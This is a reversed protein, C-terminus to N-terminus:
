AKALELGVELARKALQAGEGFWAREVRADATKGQEHTVFETIANYAGWLTGRVGPIDSGRGAQFLEGVRAVIRPAGKETDEPSFVMRAFTALTADDCPRKSLEVLKGFLDRFNAQAALMMERVGDLATKAHARHAIAVLRSQDSSIAGQLTNSCVVRTLTLGCRISLSGDHGHALLIYQEVPDGTIVEAALGKVKALVWVRRGGRLSGAAEITVLGSDVLPQFWAFAESNQLPVFGKGVVGLIRLEEASPLGGDGDTAETPDPRQVKRLVAFHETDPYATGNSAMFAPNAALAASSLELPCLHVDWDLGALKIAEAVTPPQALVTGIGHWAPDGVFLASEVEDSM